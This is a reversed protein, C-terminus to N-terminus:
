IFLAFIQFLYVPQLLVGFGPGLIPPLFRPQSRALTEADSFGERDFQDVTFSKCWDTLKEQRGALSVCLTPPLFLADTLRFEIGCPLLPGGCLGQCSFM